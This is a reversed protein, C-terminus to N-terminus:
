YRRLKRWVKTTEKGGIGWHNVKIKYKFTEGKFIFNHKGGLTKIAPFRIWKPVSKIREWRISPFLYEIIKM